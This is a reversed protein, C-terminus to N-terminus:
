PPPPPITIFAGGMKSATSDTRPAGRIDTSRSSGAPCAKKLLWRGRVKRVAV